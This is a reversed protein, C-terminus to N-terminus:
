VGQKPVMNLFKKALEIAVLNDVEANHMAGANVHPILKDRLATLSYGGSVLGAANLFRAIAATDFAPYTFYQDWEIDDLLYARLFQVDFPVNHGAPVLRKKGTVQTAQKVYKTLM